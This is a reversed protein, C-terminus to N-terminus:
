DCSKGINLYAAENDFWLGYIGEGNHWCTAIKNNRTDLMEILKDKAEANSYSKLRQLEGERFGSIKKTDMIRSNSPVTEIILKDM